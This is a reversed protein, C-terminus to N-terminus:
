VQFVVPSNRPYTRGSGIAANIYTTGMESHIGYAEHIHGFVHLTPKRMQVVSLLESCGKSVGWSNMDLIGWPPCHTVLVDLGTPIADWYLRRDRPNPLCFAHSFSPSMWPSGYIRLGEITVERDQLYEANTLAAVSGIPDRDFCYDHNGAVVLKHRHPLAGLADNFARLEEITGFDSFDGACILIDGNPVSLTHLESHTDSILVLQM